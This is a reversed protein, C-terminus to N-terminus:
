RRGTARLLGETFGALNTEGIIRAVERHEADLFLTTPMGQLRLRAAIKGNPDAISPFTWGFRRYFGRAGSRSDQFNLGVIGVAPHAAAFRALDEAEGYCGPCWSAWINIVVPRSRFRALDVRRGTIPDKGRLTLGSPEPTSRGATPRASGNERALVIGGIVAALILASAPIVVLPRRPRM